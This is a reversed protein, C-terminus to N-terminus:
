NHTTIYIDLICDRHTLLVARTTGLVFMKFSYKFILVKNKTNEKM